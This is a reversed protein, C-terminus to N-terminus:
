AVRRRRLLGAAILLGALASSPEPVATWNLSSSTLTFYGGTGGAGVTGVEGRGLESNWTIFDGTISTFISNWNSSTGFGSYIDTWNRHSDWFVDGYATGSTINFVAGTGALTKGAAGLVKDYTSVNTVDWDFISTSTYTLNDSITQTGVAGITGAGHRGNGQVTVTGGITGSGALIAGSSVLIGSSSAISGTVTLKGANVATAGSYDSVGELVLTGAGSKTLGASGTVGNSFTMTGALNIGLSGGSAGTTNLIAGVTTAGPGSDSISANAGPTFSGTTAATGTVSVGWSSLTATGGQSFDAVLLSVRNSALTAGDLATLSNSGNAFVVGAANPNVGLRGDSNYTGTVGTAAWVNTGATSDDLTMNLSSLSSGFPSGDNRGPRNLLVAIRQAESSTGLTLSSYLDGLFMPDNGNPSTLDLRTVVNNIDTMGSLGGLTKVDSLQGVGDPVAAGSTFDYNLTIDARSETAASMWATLAVAPFLTKLKM